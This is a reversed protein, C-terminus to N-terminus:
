WCTTVSSSTRPLAAPRVVARPWRTDGDYILIVQAGYSAIRM